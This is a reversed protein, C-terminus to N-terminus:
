TQYCPRSMSSFVRFRCAFESCFFFFCGPPLFSSHLSSPFSLFPSGFMHLFFCASLLSTIFHFSHILSLFSSLHLSATIPLYVSPFLFHPYSTLATNLSSVCVSFLCLSLSYRPAMAGKKPGVKPLTNAYKM